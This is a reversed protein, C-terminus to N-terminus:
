SGEVAKRLDGGNDKLWDHLIRVDMGINFHRVGLDLYYKAQDASNVEARPPVGKELCTKIVQRETAKVDPDTTAGPRGISMTYDSPGWQILDVGGLDLIEDLHEVAGRKEIMLAVLVDRLAQVYKPTGGYSMYAKRRMAVGHVGGDEPTEPRVVSICQKADEVTRCDAFLVGEFGAGIGRGALWGRPEQDIKIISGLDYLECARCFNDLDNLDFPAYEASFEVYDFVGTHGVVEVIAPWTSHLRTGITPTGSNLLRRLKNPRM